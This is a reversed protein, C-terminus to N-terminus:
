LLIKPVEPIITPHLCFLIRVKAMCCNLTVMILTFKITEMKFDIYSMNENLRKLNLIMRFLDESEPM